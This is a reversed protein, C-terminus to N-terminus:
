TILFNNKSCFEYITMLRMDKKKEHNHLSLSLGLGTRVTCKVLASHMYFVSPM